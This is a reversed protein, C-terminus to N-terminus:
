KMWCSKRGSCDLFSGVQVVYNEANRRSFKKLDGTSSFSYLFGDLSGISVWGNSDAKSLPGISRQCSVNGSFVDLALLLARVPVTVYLHGNNGSTVTFNRDLYSFDQIWQFHRGRTSLCYLQGETNSIKPM